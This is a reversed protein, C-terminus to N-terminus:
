FLFMLWWPITVLALIHSILVTGSLLKQDGGYIEGLVLSSIANPMVAVILMVNQFPHNPFINKVM